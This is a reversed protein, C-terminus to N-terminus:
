RANSTLSHILEAARAPNLAATIQFAAGPILQSAQTAVALTASRPGARDSPVM